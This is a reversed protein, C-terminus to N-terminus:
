QFELIQSVGPVMKHVAIAISLPLYIRQVASSIM